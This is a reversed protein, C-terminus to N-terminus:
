ETYSKCRKDIKNLKLLGSNTGIWLNNEEDEVITRITNVIVQKGNEEYKSYMEITDKNIDFKILGESIYGGIWYVGDEDKDEYVTRVYPEKIGAKILRSTFDTIENTEINLVTLGIPTGIWLNNKEDIFLGKINNDILGDEVKYKEITM